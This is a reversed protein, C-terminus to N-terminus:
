ARRRVHLGLPPDLRRPPVNVLIVLRIAKPQAARARAPPARVAIATPTLSSRPLSALAEAKKEVSWSRPSVSFRTEIMQFGAWGVTIGWCCFIWCHSGYACAAPTLITNAIEDLFARSKEDAEPAAAFNATKRCLTACANGM